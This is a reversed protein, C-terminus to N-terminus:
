GFEAVRVIAADRDLRIVAMFRYTRTRRWEGKGAGRKLQCDNKLGEAEEKVGEGGGSCSVPAGDLRKQGERDVEVDADEYAHAICGDLDLAQDPSHQQEVNSTDCMDRLQTPIHQGKWGM